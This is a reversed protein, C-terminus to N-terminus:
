TKTDIYTKMRRSLHGLLVSALGYLPQMNPKKFFCVEWKATGNKMGALWMYGYPHDLKRARM